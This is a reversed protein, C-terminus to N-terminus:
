VRASAGVSQPPRDADRKDGLRQRKQVRKLEREIRDMDTRKM